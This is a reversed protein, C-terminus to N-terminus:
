EKEPEKQLLHILWMPWLVWILSFAAAVPLLVPDMTKLLISLAIGVVLLVHGARKVAGYSLLGKSLLPASKARIRGQLMGRFCQSKYTLNAGMQLATVALGSIGLSYAQWILEGSGAYAVWMWLCFWAFGLAPLINSFAAETWLSLPSRRARGQPTEGAYTTEGKDFHIHEAWLPVALLKRPDQDEAVWHLLESRRPHAMISRGPVSRGRIKIVLGEEQSTMELRAEPHILLQNVAPSGESVLCYLVDDFPAVRCTTGESSGMAGCILRM